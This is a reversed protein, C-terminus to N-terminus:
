CRFTVNMEKSEGMQHPSLPIPYNFVVFAPLFSILSSLFGRALIGIPSTAQLKSDDYIM